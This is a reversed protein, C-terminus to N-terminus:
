QFSLASCTINNAYIECENKSDAFYISFCFRCSICWDQWVPFYLVDSTTYLRFVRLSVCCFVVVVPISFSAFCRYLFFFGSVWLLCFLCVCCTTASVLVGHLGCFLVTCCCFLWWFCFRLFLAESLRARDFSQSFGSCFRSCVVSSACVNSPYHPVCQRLLCYEPDWCLIKM